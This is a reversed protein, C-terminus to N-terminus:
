RMPGLLRVYEAESPGYADAAFAELSPRDSVTIANGKARILGNGELAHLAATVGLPHEALVLGLADRTLALEHGDVRDHGMLLWRALRENVPHVANSLATYATQVSLARAYRLLLGHLPPSAAIAARLAQAPLRHGLSPGQVVIRYPSRDVGLALEVPGFGDRGYLGTAVPHGEPSWLIISGLGHEFFFAHEFPQGPESLGEGEDLVVPELHPALRAFDDFNLQRLLINRLGTQDIRSM